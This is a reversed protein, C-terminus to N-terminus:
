GRLYNFLTLKDALYRYWCDTCYFMLKAAGLYKINLLFEFVRVNIYEFDSQSKSPHGTWGM